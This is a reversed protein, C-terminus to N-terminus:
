SALTLLVGAAGLFITLGILFFVSLVLGGFVLAVPHPPSADPVSRSPDAPHVLVDVTRVGDREDMWAGSVIGQGTREVGDPGRYTYRGRVRVSRDSGSGSTEVRTSTVVARTRVWTRRRHSAVVLSRAVFTPLAMFALSVVLAVVLFLTPADDLLGAMRTLRGVDAGPM